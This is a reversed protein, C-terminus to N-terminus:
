DNLLEYSFNIGNNHQCIRNLHINLRENEKLKKWDKIKFFEPCKTSIFNDYAEQTIKIKKSAQKVILPRHKFKVTILKEGEKPSLKKFTLNKKKCTFTFDEEAQRILSGGELNITLLIKINNNM